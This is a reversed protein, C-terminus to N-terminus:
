RRGATIARSRANRAHTINGRVCIKAMPLVLIAHVSKEMWGILSVCRGLVLRPDICVVVM